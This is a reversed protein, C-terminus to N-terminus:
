ARRRDAPPCLEAPGPVGPLGFRALTSGGPLATFRCDVLRGDTLRVEGTLPARGAPDAVFREAEAWLPTAATAQRWHASLSLLTADTLSEGPDHGWVAAYAANTMVLLGGPSFVALAQDVADVVAQSLELDARYRRIRSIESSIDEFMLALAGNPHPRGIVRYTQGSPLSWTEEYLGSSAAKELETMQRRWSRYDKPEPIMNRERMADLVTFLTPRMSLFDPQLSTLDLLAPNFLALQRQRDFIALGIPLHAFTKTLTQTFDRLASEAQVVTDAPLAFLLHGDADDLCTIDHWSDPQGPTKLAYRRGAYAGESVPRDFLRPLPWTLDPTGPRQAARALYTANAWIVAGSADERWILFPAKALVNRMSQLEAEVAKRTVADEGPRIAQEEPDILTIRTLGGRSEAQLLMMHAAGGQGTSTLTVRGEHQLRLMQGEFDPFRPALWAQLRVWPQGKAGNLALLARAEPTADVLVEGDFLFATGGETEAFIRRRDAHTRAQVAALGYVGGLAAFGSTLALTGLLAWDIM